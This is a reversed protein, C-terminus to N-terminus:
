DNGAPVDHCAPNTISYIMSFKMGTSTSYADFKSIFGIIYILHHPLQLREILLFLLYKAQRSLIIFSLLANTKLLKYHQPEDIEVHFEHLSISSVPGSHTVEVFLM